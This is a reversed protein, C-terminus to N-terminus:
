DDWDGDTIQRPQGNQLDVVFLHTRLAEYFGEGDGKHRVRTIIKVRPPKGKEESQGEQDAIEAVDIRAAFALRKGDPSWVPAGAYPTAKSRSLPHAAPTRRLRTHRLTTSSPWHGDRAAANDSFASRAAIRLPGNERSREDERARGNQTAAERSSVSGSAM